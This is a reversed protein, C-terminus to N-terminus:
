AGDGLLLETEARRFCSSASKLDTEIFLLTFVFHRSPEPKNVYTEMLRRRREVDWFGQFRWRRNVSVSVCEGM